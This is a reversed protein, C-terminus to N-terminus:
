SSFSGVSHDKIQWRFCVIQCREGVYALSHSYLPRSARQVGLSGWPAAKVIVYHCAVMASRVIAASQLDAGKRTRLNLDKQHCWTCHPCESVTYTRKGPSIPLCARNLDTHELAHPNSDRPFCWTTSERLHDYSWLLLLQCASAFHALSSLMVLFFVDESDHDKAGM